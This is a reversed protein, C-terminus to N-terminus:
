APPLQAPVVEEHDEVFTDGNWVYYVNKVHSPFHPQDGPTYVPLSEVLQRNKVSLRVEGGAPADSFLAKLTGDVYGVVIFAVDGQTGGSSVPVVAEDLGDGTLDAYIVEEPAVEGGTRQVFEKVDPQSALDINRLDPVSTVSTAATDPVTSSGASKGGSCGVVAVIVVPGCVIPLLRM